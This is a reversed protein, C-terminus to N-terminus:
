PPGAEHPRKGIFQGDEELGWYQMYISSDSGKQLAFLLRRVDAAAGVGDSANYALGALVAAAHANSIAWVSDLLAEIEARTSFAASNDFEAARTLAVVFLAIRPTM